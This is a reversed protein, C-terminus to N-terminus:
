AADGFPSNKAGSSAPAENNRRAGGQTRPAVRKEEAAEARKFADRHEGETADRFRRGNWRLPIWGVDVGRGKAVALWTPRDEGDNGGNPDSALVIAVDACYEMEGAEKGLGVLRGADGTGLAPAKDTGAVIEYNSRATSSIFLVAAPPGGHSGRAIERGIVALDKIAERVDAREDEGQMLQAYDLILMRPKMRRAIEILDSPKRVSLVGAAGARPSVCAVRLPLRALSHEYDARLQSLTDEAARGYFVDRWPVAARRSRDDAFLRESYLGITRAGIDIAGLELAVYLVEGTGNPDDAEGTKDRETRIHEAAFTACQLAAQTKGIGTGSTITYLGPWFGGFFHANVSTWPSPLPTEEGRCRRVSAALAQDVFEAVRPPPKFPLPVDAPREVKAVPEVQAADLATPTTTPADTM